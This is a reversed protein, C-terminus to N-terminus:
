VYYYYVVSLINITNFVFLKILIYHMLLLINLLIVTRRVINKVLKLINQLSLKSYIINVVYLIFILSICGVKLFIDTKLTQYTIYYINM